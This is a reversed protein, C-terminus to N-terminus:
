ASVVWCHQCSTCLLFQMGGGRHMKDLTKSHCRPCCDIAVVQQELPTMAKVSLFFPHDNTADPAFIPPKM